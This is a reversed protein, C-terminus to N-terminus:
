AESSRMVVSSIVSRQKAAKCSRSRQQAILRDVKKLFLSEIQSRPNLQPAHFIEMAQQELKENVSKKAM